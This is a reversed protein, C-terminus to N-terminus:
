VETNKEINSFLNEVQPMLLMSDGYSLFRYGASLAHDYIERWANGAFAAVLLLLTSRPQHFNTIMSGVIRFRYGTVIIIDTKAELVEIGRQDMVELLRDLAADAEMGDGTEYPDWQSVSPIGEAPWRGAASTLGLWYLSELTRVTTTGVATIKRGRLRKLTERSVFFHETHMMHDCILESKVPRFTGASVHLTIEAKEIGKEHLSGLLAPTFHLGATPAAVSGDHRAYHTQYTAADSEEDDRGLYPPIPMHGISELVEAFSLDGADWTFRIIFSDGESDIREARLHCSRGSCVFVAELIGHKWRKLNGILCKWEVTCCSSLNSAFDVPFYPELCFVEIIAGTEKRFRLRARIVRTNNFVLLYEPDALDPLDSFVRDTIFRGNWVLLRSCDREPLPYKAIRDVPLDYSYDTIRINGYLEKM